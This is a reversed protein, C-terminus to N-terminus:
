ESLRKLEEWLERERRSLRRPMVIRIVVQLDGRGRRTQRGKGRFVIAQGDQTGAPIELDLKENEFRLPITAGLVAQAPSIQVEAQVTAFASSFLDEFIDGFGGGGGFNFDFGGGFPNGGQPGGAGAPGASGFRDYQARKQPDSLIQYAQNIEKFRAADGGKDPHHQHSAKRFAKKIEDATANKSVGLVEYPDAM